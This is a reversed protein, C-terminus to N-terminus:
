VTDTKDPGPLKDALMMLLQVQLTTAENMTEESYHEYNEPSIGAEINQIWWNAIQHCFGIASYTIDKGILPHEEDVIISILDHAIINRLEKLSNLAKIDQDDLAGADHFWNCAVDFLKAEKNDKKYDQFTAQFEPGRQVILENLKNHKWENCFFSEFQSELFKRLCEFTMLYLAAMQMQNAFTDGSSLVADHFKPFQKRFKELDDESPQKITKWMM